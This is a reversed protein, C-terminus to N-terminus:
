KVKLASSIITGALTVGEREIEAFLAAESTTRSAWQWISIDVVQLPNGTWRQVRGHLDDVQTQWAQPRTAASITDAMTLFETLATLVGKPQDRLPGEGPFPPHVLLIDIDSDTGGDGRAASGFASAYVPKPDWSSLAERLRKWLEIRLGALIEAAPAAIHDRNLEHVQNRGMQTATVIGQQVLRSVSRRIGIESGRSAENAIQGVTLPRGTRALVALVPGDLTPTLARTPDALDVIWDYLSSDLLLLNSPKLYSHSEPRGIRGASAVARGRFLRLPRGITRDDLGSRCTATWWRGTQRARM